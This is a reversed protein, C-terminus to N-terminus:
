RLTSDLTSDVLGDVAGVGRPNDLGFNPVLEDLHTTSPHNLRIGEGFDSSLPDARVRNLDLHCDVTGFRGLSRM